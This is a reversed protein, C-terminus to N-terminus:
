CWVLVPVQNHDRPLAARGLGHEPDHHTHRLEHGAQEITRAQAQELASAQADFVEIKTHSLEDDAVALPSFMSDREQRVLQALREAFVQTGCGADCSRSPRTPPPSRCECM